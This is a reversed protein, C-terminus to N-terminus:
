SDSLKIGKLYGLAMSIVVLWQSLWCGNRYDVANLYGVAMSIIMLWQTITAGQSLWCGVGLIYM